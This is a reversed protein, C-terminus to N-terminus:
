RIARDRVVKADTAFYQWLLNPHGPCLRAEFFNGLASEFTRPQYDNGVSLGEDMDIVSILNAADPGSASEGGRQVWDHACTAADPHSVAAAVSIALNGIFTPPEL